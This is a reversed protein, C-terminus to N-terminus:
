LSSFIKLLRPIDNSQVEKFIDEQKNDSSLKILRVSINIDFWKKDTKPCTTIGASFASFMRKLLMWCFSIVCTIIM